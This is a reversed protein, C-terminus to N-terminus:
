LNLYFMFEDYRKELMESLRDEESYSAKISYDYRELTQRVASFDLTNIKVTVEIKTSDSSSSVYLSLVKADNSEIIQSIQSLSYNNQDLELIFVAGPSQVASLEAFQHVLDQLTIVGIYRNKDDLVPLITLKLRSVVEIIEYIHQNQTVFPRILNLKHSGINKEALDFDYIENDSILGIFENDDGVVPIHSIRFVEMWNLAKIGEEELGIAPVIDSILEKALM